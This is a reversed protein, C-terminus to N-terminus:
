SDRLPPAPHVPKQFSLLVLTGLLALPGWVLTKFITAKAAILSSCFVIAAGCIIRTRRDSHTLAEGTLVAYAPILALYHAFWVVPSILTSAVALAAVAYDLSCLDDRRRLRRLILTVVVVLLIGTIIRGAMFVDPEPEKSYTNTVVGWLRATALGLSFNSFRTYVAGTPTAAGEPFATIQLWTVRWGFLVLPLIVTTAILGAFCAVWCTPTRSSRRALPALLVASSAPKMAAILSWAIGAGAPKKSALAHWGLMTALLLFANVNGNWTDHWLPRLSAIMCFGVAFSAIRESYMQTVRRHCVILAGGICLWRFLDWALSRWPQAIVHFPRIATALFPPYVYGPEGVHIPENPNEYLARAANEYIVFDGHYEGLRAATMQWAAIVVFAAILAYRARAVPTSAMLEAPPSDCRTM